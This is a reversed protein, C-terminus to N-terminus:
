ARRVTQGSESGLPRRAGRGDYTQLSQGGARADALVALAARIGGMVASTLATNREALARLRSVEPAPLPFAALTDALREKRAAIRSLDAFRGDRLAAAEDLLLQRIADVPSPPESRPM